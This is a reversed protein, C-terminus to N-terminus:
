PGWATQTCHVGQPEGRGQVKTPGREKTPNEYGSQAKLLVEPHAPVLLSIRASRLFATAVSHVSLTRFEFGGLSAVVFGLVLKSAM